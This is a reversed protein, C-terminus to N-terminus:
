MNYTYIIMRLCVSYVCVFLLVCSSTAGHPTTQVCVYRARTHNPDLQSCCTLVPTAVRRRELSFVPLFCPDCNLTMLMFWLQTLIVPLLYGCAFLFLLLLYILLDISIMLNISSYQRTSFHKKVKIQCFSLEFCFHMQCCLDPYMLLCAASSCM